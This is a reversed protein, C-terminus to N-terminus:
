CSSLAAALSLASLEAVGFFWRPRWAVARPMPLRLGAVVRVARLRGILAGWDGPAEPLCQLCEDLAEPEIGSEIRPAVAHAASHLRERDILSGDLLAHM